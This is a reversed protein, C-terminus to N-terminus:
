PNPLFRSKETYTRQLQNAAADIPSIRGEVAFDAIEDIGM